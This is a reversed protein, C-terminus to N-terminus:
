VCVCFFFFFFFFFFSAFFCLLCASDNAIYIELNGSDNTRPAVGEQGDDPIPYTGQITGDLSMVILEDNKDSVAYVM